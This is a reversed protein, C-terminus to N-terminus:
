NVFLFQLNRKKVVFKNIVQEICENKKDDIKKRYVSIMCLGDLREESMTSRAWTEVRRLLSISREVTCKTPPLTIYIMIGKKVAPFFESKKLLKKYDVMTDKM